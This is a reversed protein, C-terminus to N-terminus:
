CSLTCPRRVLTSRSSLVPLGLPCGVVRSRTWCQLPIGVSPTVCPLRLTCGLVPAHVWRVCCTGLWFEVRVRLLRLAIASHVRHYLLPALLVGSLRILFGVESCSWSLLPDPWGVAVWVVATHVCGDSCVRVLAFKVAGGFM